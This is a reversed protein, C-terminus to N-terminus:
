ARVLRRVVHAQCATRRVTALAQRRAAFLLLNRVRAAAVPALARHRHSQPYRASRVRRQVAHMDHSTVHIHSSTADLIAMAVLTGDELRGVCDSNSGGIHHPDHQFEEALWHVGAAIDRVDIADTGSRIAVHHSTYKSLVIAHRLKRFSRAYHAAMVMCLIQGRPSTLPALLFTGRLHLGVHVAIVEDKTYYVGTDDRVLRWVTIALSVAQHHM